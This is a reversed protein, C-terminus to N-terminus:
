NNRSITELMQEHKKPKTDKIESKPGIYSLLIPQLALGHFFGLVIIGMYMRFYYLRFVESPAFGLVTVGILKTSVIGTMVTSGMDILAKRAREENSGTQKLYSTMIHVCFEVALGCCMVLNVVSIANIEVGYGGAM